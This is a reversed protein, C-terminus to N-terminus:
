AHEREWATLEQILAGQANMVAEVTWVEELRTADHWSKVVINEAAFHIEGDHAFVTEYLARRKATDEPLLYISYFVFGSLTPMEALAADLILTSGEMCYETASLLFTMGRRACYDRMVLQQIHQPVSRGMRMRAGIYGRYPKENPISM